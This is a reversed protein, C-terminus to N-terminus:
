FILGSTEWARILGRHTDLPYIGGLSHAKSGVMGMTVSSVGFSRASIFRTSHIRALRVIATGDQSLMHTHTHTDGKETTNKDKKILM